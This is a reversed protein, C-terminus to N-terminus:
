LLGLSKFSNYGNKAIVLHDHVTIGLARGAEVVQNTIEMDANSPTPDGSPHNHVMIIGSAGLDLARRVVERPYITTQDVTGTQLVEDATLIHKHNVFIIRFQETRNHRMSARCYDLLADWSELMPRDIVRGRLARRAAAEVIKLITVVTPDDGSVERILNPEAGIVESFNGFCNILRTALLRVDRGPLGFLLLLELLENDTTAEGDSNFFRKEERRMIEDNQKRETIDNEVLAFGGGRMRRESVLLWRGDPRLTELDDRPNRHLAMRTAVDQIAGGAGSAHRVIYGREMATTVIKEFSVGRRLVDAVDHNLARFRENFMVLRDDADFLAVGDSASEMADMLLGFTRDAEARSQRLAEERSKLETIDIRISALGNESTRREILRLTRGDALNQESAPPPNEFSNLREQIWAEERGRAELVAGAEANRRLLDEMHTGPRLLDAIAPFHERTQSNSLVLRKDADFLMFPAPLSEIADVLRAHAKAARAESEQLAAERQKMETIDTQVMAIGGDATRREVIMLWRGDNLRVEAVGGPEHRRELRAAVVDEADIDPYSWAGDEIGRRVIDEFRDGLKAGGGKAPHFNMYHENCLVLRDDSDFLAFGQSISDLAELLRAHAKAAKAESKRLAAERQKMETIDAHVVATGGDATRREMVLLWRGDSLGVEITGGPDLHATMRGKVQDKSSLGQYDLYGKEVGARVIEEMTTGPELKDMVPEAFHRFKDNCLVMRDNADFLAFGESISEIADRLRTHAEAARQEAMVQDTVDAAIGRYGVFREQDDYIPKGSASLWVTEGDLTGFPYIFDRFPRRAELDRLHRDWLAPDGFDEAVEHRTRGLYVSADADTRGVVNNFRLQDDTEWFWDSSAEALDKFRAESERLAQQQIKLDTIDTLMTVRGGDPAGRESVRVWRGDSWHQERAGVPDRHYALREALWEEERGEAQAIVGRRVRDRVMEEYSIGHRIKAGTGALLEHARRNCYALRDDADWVLFGDDIADMAGNLAQHTRQLEERAQAEATVDILSGVTEVAGDSVVLRYEDRIWRYSGDAHRCRYEIVTAEQKNDAPEAPPPEARDDPHVHERWWKSDYPKDQACGFLRSVNPSIWHFRRAGNVVRAVYLVAPSDAMLRFLSSAGIQDNVQLNM